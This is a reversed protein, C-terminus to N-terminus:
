WRNWLYALNEIDSHRRWYKSCIGCKYMWRNSKASFVLTAPVVVHPVLARCVQCEVKRDIVAGAPEADDTASEATIKSKKSHRKKKRHSSLPAVEAASGGSSGSALGLGGGCQLSDLGTAM